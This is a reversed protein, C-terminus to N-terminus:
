VTERTWHTLRKSETWPTLPEHGLSAGVRVISSHKEQQRPRVVHTVRIHSIMPRVRTEVNVISLKVLSRVSLTFFLSHDCM